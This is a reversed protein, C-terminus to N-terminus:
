GSPKRRSDSTSSERWCWCPDLGATQRWASYKRTLEHGFKGKDLSEVNDAVGLYRLWDVVATRLTRTAVTPEVSGDRFAASPVYRIARNKHLDLVAATHEGRLGVDAPDATPALPYLSKPEDRLPGLYRVSRAFFDDLYRGAEAFALPLRYPAVAENQVEVARIADVVLDKFEQSDALATRLEVRLSPPLTRLQELFLDLAVGSAADHSSSKYHARLSEVQDVSARKALVGLIFDVARNPVLTGRDVVSTRFAGRPRFAAGPSDGAVTAVIARATETPLDVGISLRQPLFHRVTCGVPQASPLEDHLEALSDEDLDVQYDLSARM